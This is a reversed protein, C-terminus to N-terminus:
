SVSTSVAEIVDAVDEDTLHPTLPISITRESIWAANPFAERAYGFHSRYYSQLHVAVYHVGTGIGLAHLRGMLEDRSVGCREKDVMLTYLHRAHVRDSEMPAPIGLPLRSFAADYREWVERRRERWADIQAFQHIGIAAALDTLNDKYGVEVVDYHKYGSESFRTWAAASLGHLSLTRLRQAIQADPTTIMGGEGTTINKNAYFSFCTFPSISGIPRGKYTGGLGHAADEIVILGHRSAIAGIADMDCIRGAFHIPVIAKTRPTIAREVAQPDILQTDRDCDVLVPTAGAHLVANATACFTMTSTIVEDGPGIGAALLSLHLAATCSNVAVAHAAGTYEAVMAEFKRVKPGTGIWGSRLTDVVEHIAEDSIQPAGFVLYRSRPLRPASRVDPATM